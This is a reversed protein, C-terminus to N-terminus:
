IKKLVVVRGCNGQDEIVKANIRIKGCYVELIEDKAVNRARHISLVAENGQALQDIEYEDVEPLMSQGPSSLIKEIFNM